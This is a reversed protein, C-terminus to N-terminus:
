IVRPHLALEILEATLRNGDALCAYRGRRIFISTTIGPALAKLRSRFAEAEARTRFSQTDKMASLIIIDNAVQQPTAHLSDAARLLARIARTYEQMPDTHPPTFYPRM